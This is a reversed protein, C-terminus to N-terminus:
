TSLKAQSKRQELIVILAHFENYLKYDKKLNNEFFEKYVEYNLKGTNFLSKDFCFRKTYVDIIFSPKKFAYLMISDATEKGIGNFKLLFERFISQDNKSYNKVENWKLAFEQVRKAKQKFYRSHRILKELEESKMEAVSNVDLKGANYLNLICSSANRWTNNQTLFAGLCVEFSEDFSRPYSYDNPFYEMKGNQVLPWWGQYGFKDLMEEYKKILNM